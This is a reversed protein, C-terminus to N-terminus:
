IRLVSASTQVQRLIKVELEKEIMRINDYLAGNSRLSPNWIAKGSESLTMGAAIGDLTKRADAVDKANNGEVKITTFTGLM